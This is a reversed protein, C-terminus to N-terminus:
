NFVNTIENKKILLDKHTLYMHDGQITKVKFFDDSMLEIVVVPLYVSILNNSPLDEFNCSRILFAPELPTFKNDKDM